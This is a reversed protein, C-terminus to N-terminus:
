CDGGHHPEDHDCEAKDLGYNKGSRPQCMSEGEELKDELLLDVVKDVRGSVGLIPRIGMEDFLALARRGMGGAIIVDVGQDKLFRPIRGPEHGPNPVIERNVVSKGSIEVLTYEPCRGFHASVSEMDTSVAIKM